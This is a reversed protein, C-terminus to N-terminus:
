YRARGTIVEAAKEAVMVTPARTNSTLAAPMVTVVQRSSRQSDGRPSLATWAVTVSFGEGDTLGPYSHPSGLLAVPYEVRLGGTAYAIQSTSAGSLRATPYRRGRSWV